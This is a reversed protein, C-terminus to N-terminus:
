SKGQAKKYACTQDVGKYPYDSEVELPNTKAYVMATYMDGGNCGQNGDKTDCDVLQQESYSKLTGTKIADRGELAGTTSFSWCSGCQGQDKVPTVANKLRWDV